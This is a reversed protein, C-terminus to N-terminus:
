RILSSKRGRGFCRGEGGQDLTSYVAGSLTVIGICYGEERKSAFLKSWILNMEGGHEIRQYLAVSMVHLRVICQKLCLPINSLSINFPL